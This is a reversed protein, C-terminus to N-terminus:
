VDVEARRAEIRGAVLGRVQADRQQEVARDQVVIALEPRHRQVGAPQALRRETRNLQLFMSHRHLEPIDPHEIGRLLILITNTGATRSSVTAALFAVSSVLLGM